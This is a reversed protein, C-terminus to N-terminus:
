EEAKLERIVRKAARRVRRLLVELAAKDGRHYAAIAMMLQAIVPDLSIQKSKM